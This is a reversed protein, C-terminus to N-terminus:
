RPPEYRGVQMQDYVRRNNTVYIPLEEYGPENTTVTIWFGEAPIESGKPLKIRAHSYKSPPPEQEAIRGAAPNIRGFTVKVDDRECRYGTMRLPRNGYYEIRLSRDYVKPHGPKVYFVNPSYSVIGLIEVSIPIKLQPERKLGTNVIIEGRLSTGPKLEQKTKAVLDYKLGPAIEVFEFDLEPMNHTRISPQFPDSMQNELHVLGTQGPGTELSRVRLAIPDRTVAHKVFGKIKFRFEPRAPDNSYIM